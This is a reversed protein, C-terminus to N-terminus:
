DMSAIEIGKQRRSVKLCHGFLKPLSVPKIGRERNVASIKFAIRWQEFVVKYASWLSNKPDFIHTAESTVGNVELVKLERGERLAEPSPAKIDLRGLYFGEYPKCMADMADALADSKLHSGDLFMAGRSHTGLAAIPLHKGPPLIEALRQRFRKLYIPAMCVGREDELILQEISRWGDGVVEPLVKVTISFIKGKAERPIRYYFVGFEEGPVFEQVLTDAVTNQLYGRVEGMSRVISVGLGRQGEDPKLVVPFDIKNEELFSEVKAVQVEIEWERQILTWRALWENEGKRGAFDLLIESKEDEIFGGRPMAPNTATFLTFSGHRLGLYIIYLVVPPYFVWLPWFEWRSFRRWRSLLLRRQRYFGPSVRFWIILAVTFIVVASATFLPQWDLGSNLALVQLVM